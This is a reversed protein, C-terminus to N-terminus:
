IGYINRKYIYCIMMEFLIGALFGGFGKVWFHPLFGRGNPVPELTPGRFGGRCRSLGGAANSPSGHPPSSAPSTRTPPKLGRSFFEDFHSDEWIPTFIFFIQTAVVWNRLPQFSEGANFKRCPNKKAHAHLHKKRPCKTPSPIFIFSTEDHSPNMLSIPNYDLHDHHIPNRSLGATSLWVDRWFAVMKQARTDHATRSNSGSTFIRWWGPDTEAETPM